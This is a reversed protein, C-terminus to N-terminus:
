AAARAHGRPGAEGATADVRLRRYIVDSLRRELCRMAEKQSKGEARKRQYHARRPTRGQIQTLATVHLAHNLGRDGARSLRHRVLEGSSVEIPATGTFSAFAAASRFRSIPGVRALIKGALM